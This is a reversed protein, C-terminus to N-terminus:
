PAQLYAMVSRSTLTVSDVLHHSLTSCLVSQQENLPGSEKAQVKAVHSQTKVHQKLAFVRRPVLVLKKKEATGPNQASCVECTMNDDDFTKFYRMEPRKLCVYIAERVVKQKTNRSDKEPVVEDEAEDPTDECDNYTEWADERASDAAAVEGTCSPEGPIAPPLPPRLPWVILLIKRHTTQVQSSRM